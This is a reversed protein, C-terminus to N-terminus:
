SGVARSTEEHDQQQQYPGLLWQDLWLEDDASLELNQEACTILVGNRLSKALESACCEAQGVDLHRLSAALIRLAANVQGVLVKEGHEICYRQAARATGGGENDANDFAQELGAYLLVWQSTTLQPLGFAQYLRAMLGTPACAPLENAACPEAVTSSSVTLEAVLMTGNAFTSHKMPTHGNPPPVPHAALGLPPAQGNPAEDPLTHRTPNYVYMAKGVQKVAIDPNAQQMIIQSLKRKRILEKAEVSLESYITKAVGDLQLPKDAQELQQRLLFIARKIIIEAAQDDEIEALAAPVPVNSPVSSPMALDPAARAEPPISEAVAHVPTQEIPQTTVIPGGAAIPAMYINKLVLSDNEFPPLKKQRKQLERMFLALTGFGFYRKVGALRRYHDNREFIHEIEDAPLVERVVLEDYVANALEFFVHPVTTDAVHPLFQEANVARDSLNTYNYAAASNTVLSIQKGMSRLRVLVPAFDSDGSFIIYEDIQPSRQAIDLIDLAMHIDASNKDSRTLPACPTVAFGARIFNNCYEAYQQTITLYCRRTLVTRRLLNHNQAQKGHPMGDEIWRLWRLPQQAFREAALPDLRLLGFYINDFDVFLAARRTASSLSPESM